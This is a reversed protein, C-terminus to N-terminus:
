IVRVCVFVHMLITNKIQLLLAPDFPYFESSLSYVCMEIDLM